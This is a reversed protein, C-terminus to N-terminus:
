GLLNNEATDISFHFFVFIIQYRAISDPSKEYFFVYFDLVYGIIQGYIAGKNTEDNSTVLFGV